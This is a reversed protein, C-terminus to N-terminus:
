CSLSSQYFCSDVNGWSSGQLTTELKVIFTYTGSEPARFCFQPSYASDSSAYEKGDKTVKLKINGARPCGAASARYIEGKKLTVDAFKQDGRDFESKIKEQCEGSESTAVPNRVVPSGPACYSYVEPTFLVLCLFLAASFVIRKM